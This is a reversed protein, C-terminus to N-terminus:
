GRAPRPSLGAQGPVVLAATGAPSKTPDILGGDAGEIAEDPYLTM